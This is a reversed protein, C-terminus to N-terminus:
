QKKWLMKVELLASELRNLEGERALRRKRIEEGARLYDEAIRLLTGGATKLNERSLNVASLLKERETFIGGALDATIQEAVQEERNRVSSAPVDVTTVFRQDPSLDAIEVLSRALFSTEVPIDTEDFIRALQQKGHERALRDTDGAARLLVVAMTLLRNRGLFTHVLEQMLTHRYREYVGGINDLVTGYKAKRGPDADIFAQLDREEKEREAVLRLRKLGQMKGKYNKTANAYSKIDDAFKLQRARDGEGAREMVSIMWDYRRSLIPLQFEEQIRLFHSTKHRYTRGPYGLIMVFDGERVGKRSVRIFRKSKFPVNEKAYPAPSGDPAVYARLFSFDATHRPWVWNDTEGGFNGVGLPPVYVLRVDRIVRYTFLVYSRAPFMESVECSVGERRKEEERAIANMKERISEAREVPPMDQLIGAMVEGTVDRMSEIIRCTYDRALIEEERTFATFGNKLYDKEPTSAATVAPFAIHHNTLILGDASVFEGTGGSNGMGVQCIAQVLSTGDPNYIEKVDIKLGKAKLNLKGLETLPYMGEDASITFCLVVLAIIPFPILLSKRM